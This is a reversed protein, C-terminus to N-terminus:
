YVSFRCVEVTEGIGINGQYQYTSDGKQVTVFYDAASSGSYYVVEVVYQGSPATGEDWYVNEPGYGNTDDFDLYGGSASYRDNYYIEEGYPDTVHLDLDSTNDWTLTVQVDGSGASLAGEAAQIEAERQDAYEAAVGSLSTALSVCEGTTGCSIAGAAIDLGTATADLEEFHDATVSVVVDLVLSAATLALVAPNATGVGIYATVLTFTKLGVSAFRLAYAVDGYSLRASLSSNESVDFHVDHSYETNGSDVDIVAFDATDDGSPSIIVITDSSTVRIPNGSGDYLMEMWKGDNSRVVARRVVGSQTDFFVMNGDRDAAIHEFSSLGTEDYAVNQYFDDADGGSNDDANDDSDYSWEDDDTDPDYPSSCSLGAAVLVALGILLAIASRLAPRNKSM